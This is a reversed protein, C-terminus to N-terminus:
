SNKYHDTWYTTWYSGANRATNEFCADIFRTPSKYPSYPSYPSCPLCLKSSVVIIRCVSACAKQLRSVLCRLLASANVWACLVTASRVVESGLFTVSWCAQQLILIGMIVLIRQGHLDHLERLLHRHLFRPSPVDHCTLAGLICVCPCFLVDQQIHEASTDPKMAWWACIGWCKDHRCM